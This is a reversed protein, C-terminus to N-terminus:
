ADDGPLLHCRAAAELLLRHVVPLRLVSLLVVLLVVLLELLLLRLRLLLRLVVLVVTGAGDRQGRGHQRRQAM